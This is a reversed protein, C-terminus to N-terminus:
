SLGSFARKLANLDIKQMTLMADMVRQSKAPDPDTMMEHLVRPVIQWSAGYQDKLWGCQQAKPAGGESLREWYYDIEEQSDCNVMFSVAENFKFRPGGNIAHFSQGELEFAVSMVSGPPRSKLKPCEEGYRSMKCVKSNPFITTYFNAAQEAQDDFWLCPSIKQISRM